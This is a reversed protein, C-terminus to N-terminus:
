SGRRTAASGRKGVECIRSFLPRYRDRSRIRERRRSQRALERYIWRRGGVELCAWGTTVGCAILHQISIDDFMQSLAAFRVPTEPDRNPFLYSSQTTEPQSAANHM